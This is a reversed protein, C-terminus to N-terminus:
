HNFFHRLDNLFTFVMLGALLFFGLRQTLGLIETSLPRGRVWEVAHYLLHGGDLLPIPLLNLVGLSLSILAMFHLYSLLGSRASEGALSAIRVPGGLDDLSAQGTLMQGFSDLTLLTLSWTKMAGHGLATLPSDKELVTWQRRMTETVQPSIGIRGIRRGNPLDVARPIVQLKRTQGARQLEIEVIAQPHNEVIRVVQAWTEVPQGAVRLLRDLPKLGAEDAVSDPIVEGVVPPLPPAWLHFGSGEVGEEEAASTVHVTALRHVEEQGRDNRTVLTVTGRGRIARPWELEFDQWTRIAGGDLSLVCEGARIGANWALTGTEPADLCPRQGPIGLTYLLSFLLWALLFNALPGAVVIASRQALTKQNFAHQVDLPSVPGEREDLMRVYGGLPFLAVVWEIGNKAQRRWLPRGLGISFRLVKVGVWRAVAFHGLEHIFILCSLALLFAGLTGAGGKLM